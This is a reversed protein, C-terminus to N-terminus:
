LPLPTLAPSAAAAPLLIRFIYVETAVFLSRYRDMLRPPCGARPDGVRYCAVQELQLGLRDAEGRLFSLTETSRLSHALYGTGGGRQLLRHMTALLSAILDPDFSVDAGLVLDVDGCRHLDELGGRLVGADTGARGREGPASFSVSVSAPSALQSHCVAWDLLAVKVVGAGTGEAMPGCGECACLFLPDSEVGRGTTQAQADASHTAPDPASALRDAHANHRLCPRWTQIVPVENIRLNRAMLNLVKPHHDSLVISQCVGLRSLVVGLMGNGAGLELVRKHAVLHQNAYLFDSMVLAAEWLAAGTGGTSETGFGRRLELTLASDDALFLTRFCREPGENGHLDEHSPPASPAVCLATYSEMLDDDYEVSGCGKAVGDIYLRLLLKRYEASPPYEQAIPHRLVGSVFRAQAGPEAWAGDACQMQEFVTRAPAMALYLKLVQALGVPATAARPSRLGALPVTEPSM